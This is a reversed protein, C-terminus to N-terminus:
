AALFALPNWPGGPGQHPGPAFGRAPRPCRGRKAPEARGSRHPQALPRRGSPGAALRTAPPLAGIPRRSPVQRTRPPPTPNGRRAATTSCTSPGGGRGCTATATGAVGAAGLGTIGGACAGDGDGAAGAAATGPGAAARVRVWRLGDRRGRRRWHHPGGSAHGDQRRDGGQLFGAGLHRAGHQRADPRAPLQRHLDVRGREVGGVWPRAHGYQQGADAHRLDVAVLRDAGGRRRNRQRDRGIRQPRVPQQLQGAAGAM